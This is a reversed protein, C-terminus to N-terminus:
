DKLKLGLYLDFYEMLEYIGTSPNEKVKPNPLKKDLTKAWRVAKKIDGHMELTKFLNTLSKDYLLDEQIRALETNIKPIYADRSLASQMYQFHLLVWLEFCENSWLAHWRTKHADCPDNEVNLYKKKNKSTIKHYANDYSDKAFSDKDYFIWVHDISIGKNRRNAVDKEAYEVLGLTSRGGSKEDVIIIDSATMQYREELVDKMNQVYQPETKVGEGYFIHTGFQQLVKKRSFRSPPNYSKNAM